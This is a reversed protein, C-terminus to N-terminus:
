SFIIYTSILLKQKEKELSKQWYVLLDQWNDPLELKSFESPHQLGHAHHTVKALGKLAAEELLGICLGTKGSGTMGLAVAHTTLDDPDYLMPDSTIEEEKPDFIRGLYFRDSKISM